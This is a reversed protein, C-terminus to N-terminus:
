NVRSLSSLSTSFLRPSQVGNSSKRAPTRPHSAPSRREETSIRSPPLGVYRRVGSADRGVVAGLLWGLVIVLAGLEIVLGILFFTIILIRLAIPADGLLLFLIFAIFATFSVVGFAVAVVAAAAFGWGILVLVTVCVWAVGWVRRVAAKDM